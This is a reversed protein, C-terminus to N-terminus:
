AAARAPRAGLAALIAAITLPGWPVDWSPAGTARLEQLKLVAWALPSAALWSAVGSRASAPGVFTWAALLLACGPVLALWAASRLEGGREASWALAACLVAGWTAMEILPRLPLPAQLDAALALALAPLMLGIVGIGPLRGREGRPWGAVSLWPVLALPLCPAGGFGLEPGGWCSLAAPAVSLLFALALWATAM